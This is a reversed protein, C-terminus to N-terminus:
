QEDEDDADMEDNLMKLLATRSYETLGLVTVKDGISSVNVRDGLKTVVLLADFEGAIIQEALERELEGKARLIPMM